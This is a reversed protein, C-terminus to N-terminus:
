GIACTKIATLIDEDEQMSSMFDDYTMENGNDDLFKFDIEDGTESSKDIKFSEMERYFDAEVAAQYEPSDFLEQRQEFDESYNEIKPPIDPESLERLRAAIEADSMTADIGIEDYKDIANTGFGAEQLAIVDNGTYVKDGGVDRAIADYLESDSIENYDNKDPFYGAEFARQKVYDTTNDVSVVGQGTQTKAKDKRVLGVLAKNSVDRAKLEGAYDQIGGNEKIFQALSRPKYGLIKEVSAESPATIEARIEKARTIYPDAQSVVTIEPNRGEKFASETEVVNKRHTVVDALTPNEIPNNEDIHAIRSMNAANERVEVPMTKDMAVADFVEQGVSRRKAFNSVKEAGVSIGRGLGAFAGGALAAFGIDTAAEKLGYEYGLKNEWEMRDPIQYAEIAANLGAEKAMYSLVNKSAGFGLFMTGANIPDAFSGVMGGAFATAVGAAGERATQEAIYDRTFRTENEIDKEIESFTKIGNYREDTARKQLIYADIKDDILKPLKELSQFEDASVDILDIPKKGEIEEIKARTDKLAKTQLYGRFGLKSNLAESYLSGFFINSKETITDAPPLGVTQSKATLLDAGAM